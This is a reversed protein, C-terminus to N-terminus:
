QQAVFLRRHAERPRHQHRQHVSGDERHHEHAHCGHLGAYRVGQEREASQEDPIERRRRESKRHRRERGVRIEDGLHVERALDKRERGDRHREDIVRDRGRREYRHHDVVADRWRRCDAQERRDDRDM